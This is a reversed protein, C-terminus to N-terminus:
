KGLIHIGKRSGPLGCSWRSASWNQALSHLTFFSLIRSLRM